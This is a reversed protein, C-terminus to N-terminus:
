DLEYLDTTAGGGEPDTTPDTILDGEEAPASVTIGEETLSLDIDQLDVGSGAVRDESGEEPDEAEDETIQFKTWRVSEPAAQGGPPPPAMSTIAALLPPRTTATTAATNPIVNENTEDISQGVVVETEKPHDDKSLIDHLRQERLERLEPNEPVPIIEENSYPSFVGNSGTAGLTSVGNQAIELERQKKIKEGDRVMKEFALRNREDADDREKRLATIENREAEQAVEANGDSSLYAAYWADVRRREDDFVPSLYLSPLPTHTLSLCVQAIM